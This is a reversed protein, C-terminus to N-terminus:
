FIIINVNNYPTNDVYQIPRVEEDEEIYVEEDLKEPYSDAIEKLDKILERLTM